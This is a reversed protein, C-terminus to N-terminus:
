TIEAVPSCLAVYIRLVWSVHFTSLSKGPSCHRNVCLNTTINASGSTESEAVLSFAHPLRLAEWGTWGVFRSQRIVTSTNFHGMALSKHLCFLNRIKINCLRIKDTCECCSGGENATCLLLNMQKVVIGHLKYVNRKWSTINDSCGPTVRGKTSSFISFYVHSVIRCFGRM